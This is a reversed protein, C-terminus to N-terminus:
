ILQNVNKSYRMGDTERLALSSQTMEGLGRVRLQESADSNGHVDTCGRVGQPVLNLEAREDPPTEGDM